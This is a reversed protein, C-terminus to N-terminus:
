KVKKKNNQTKTLKGKRILRLEGSIKYHQEDIVEKSRITKTFNLNLVKNEKVIGEDVEHVDM